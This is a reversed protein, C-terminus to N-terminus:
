NLLKSESNLSKNDDEKKVLYEDWLADYTRNVLNTFFVEVKVQLSQAKSAEVLVDGKAEVDGEFWEIEGAKNKITEFKAFANEQINNAANLYPVQENFYEITSGLLPSNLKKNLQTFFGIVKEANESGVLVYKPARFLLLGAFLEKNFKGDIFLDPVEHVDGTNNEASNLAEFFKIQDDASPSKWDIEPKIEEKNEISEESETSSDYFEMSEKM